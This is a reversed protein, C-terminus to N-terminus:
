ILRYMRACRAGLRSGLSCRSSGLAGLGIPPVSALERPRFNSGFLPFRPVRPVCPGLDEEHALRGAGVRRDSCSSPYEMKVKSWQCAPPPHGQYEGRRLLNFCFRCLNHYGSNRGVLNCPCLDDCVISMKRLGLQSPIM